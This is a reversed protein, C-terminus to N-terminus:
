QEYAAKSYKGYPTRALIVPFKGARDPRQIDAALRTGDRMPIMVNFERRVKMLQPAADEKGDSPQQALARAVGLSQYGCLLFGLVTIRWCSLKIAPKGTPIAFGEDRM